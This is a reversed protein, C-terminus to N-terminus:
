RREDRVELAALASTYQELEEIFFPWHGNETYDGGM